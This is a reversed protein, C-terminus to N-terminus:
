PVLSLAQQGTGRASVSPTNFRRGELIESVTLVQLRPYERGMVSLAGVEGIYRSFNRAKTPSLPQLVILGALLATDNEVVGHLARLDQIGIHKGGKVEIAMSRLQKKGPLAFYLRGDVGGDATRKTTVFGEIQEVAWKQFHYKDREWLDQAGELNRPVGHIEFDAGEVLRLREELRVRAVRKIAHIAIDIGIWRRNLKHAAEMTTACGCFPDLVVDGEDTSAQIIRELLAIPKQTAYGMREQRQAPPIDTWLNPVTQTPVGELYRKLRPRGTNTWHILGVEDLAECKALQDLTVYNPGLRDQAWRPLKSLQPPAWARGSSPLIGNFPKYAEAGGAKGGTLDTTTFRGRDDRRSYLADIQARTMPRRAGHFVFDDSMAYYLISDTIAEYKRISLPHANTRRWVIENRFNRHGFIADMMAKIYHSATPDCHLYVSGTPKLIVKMELMREVMYSLYALLQPQTGRLANVWFRWFEAVADDIGAERMLIPMTRIVRETEEDLEWQDCFAEIQDPLPRGTEDTYIANYDRNSSFPPDLYILDVSGANMHDRMVTLCDGYWLRNM